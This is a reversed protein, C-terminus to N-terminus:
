REIVMEDAVLTGLHRGGEEVRVLVEDGTKLESVSKSAGDSVLRVTEANQVILSYPHGNVTTEVLMMPRREIKVRGIHGVRAMGSRKVILVEDGAKLESLYRTRLGPTLVYSSVPGANVRFPRPEVHPNVHVEAEVLFLGSSQSGVLLGEGPEMLECTDVCVRAGSGIPKISVVKGKALPMNEQLQKLYRDMEEIDKASNPTLVVGDVGLELTQLAVKADSVSSVDALLATGNENRAILNELPIIKWNPCSILLYRVGSDALRLAREEDSRDKVVLEVASNAPIVGKPQSQASLLKIESRNDTSATKLKLGGALSLDDPSLVAVDCCGEAMKLFEAKRDTPANPVLRLWLQKM